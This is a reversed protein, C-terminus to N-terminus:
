NAPHKQALDLYKERDDPVLEALRNYSDTFTSDLQICEQYMSIAREKDGSKEFLDGMVWSLWAYRYGGEYAKTFYTRAEDPNGRNYLVLGKGYVAMMLDPDIALARDYYIDASDPQGKNIFENGQYALAEAANSGGSESSSSSDESDYPQEEDPTTTTTPQDNDNGAFIGVVILFAFFGVVSFTIVRVIKKIKDTQISPSKPPSTYTARGGDNFPKSQKQFIKPQVPLTFYSMFLSYAAGLFFVWNFIRHLSYTIGYLLAFVIFARFWRAAKRPTKEFYEAV